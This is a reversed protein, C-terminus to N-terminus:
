GKATRTASVPPHVTNHMKELHAVNEKLQKVNTLMEAMQMHDRRLNEPSLMKALINVRQMQTEISTEQKDTTSALARFRTEMDLLKTSLSKIQMKAVAGAGAVSFLIGGLTIVVELNIAGDM